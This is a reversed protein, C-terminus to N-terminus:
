CIARAWVNGRAFGDGTRATRATTVLRLYLVGSAPDRFAAPEAAHDLAARNEAEPLPHSAGGDRVSLVDNRGGTIGVTIGSSATRDRLALRYVSPAAGNWTLQYATGTRLNTQFSVAPQGPPVPARPPM